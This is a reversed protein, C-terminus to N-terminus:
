SSRARCRSAPRTSCPAASSTRTSSSRRRRRAARTTCAGPSSCPGTRSGALGTLASQQSASLRRGAATARAAATVTVVHRRAATIDAPYHFSGDKATPQPLLYGDVSLRAGAVPRSGLRLHGIANRTNNSNANWQRVVLGSQTTLRGSGRASTRRARAPRGASTVQSVVAQLTRAVPPLDPPPKSENRSGGLAFIQLESAIGGNSSTPTGGSTIAIYQKGGVSYIAPGAAIQHGTQFTWLVKGSELDFARLVGDGGGAFGLGSDTTSIGGREPEPTRFKWVQRGTNVDIAGISGHDHWGPLLSGFNGNELGLFVDGLLRKRRKQTPSLKVQAMVSATEAAGNFDIYYRAHMALLLPALWVGFRTLRRAADGLVARGALLFLASGVFVLTFVTGAIPQAAGFADHWARYPLWTLCMLGLVAALARARVPAADDAFAEGAKRAMFPILALCAVGFIVDVLMTRPYGWAEIAIGQWAASYSITLNALAM